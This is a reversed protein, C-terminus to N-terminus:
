FSNSNIVTDNIEIYNNKERLIFFVIVDSTSSTKPAESDTDKVSSEMSIMKRKKTLGLGNKKVKPNNLKAYKGAPSEDKFSSLSEKSGSENLFLCKSVHNEIVASSFEETCIPCSIKDNNM